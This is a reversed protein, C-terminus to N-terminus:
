PFVQYKRGSMKNALPSNKFYQPKHVFNPKHIFYWLLETPDQASRQRARLDKLKKNSRDSLALCV